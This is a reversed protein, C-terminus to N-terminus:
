QITLDLNFSLDFLLSNAVIDGTSITNNGFGYLKITANPVYIKGGFTNVSSAASAMFVANNDNGNQWLLVGHYPDSTASIPALQINNAFNLNGLGMSGGSVYFFVGGSPPNPCASSPTGGGCLASNSGSVNLGDTFTYHGTGFNVIDSNGVCLSSQCGANTGFQYNGPQFNVTKSNPINLGGAYYGPTCTMTSGGSCSGTPTTLAAVPNQSAWTALPDTVKISTSVPNPNVSVTGTVSDHTGSTPCTQGTSGNNLCNYVEVGNNVPTACSTSTGATVTNSSTFPDSSVAPNSGNSNYGSGLLISGVACVSQGSSLTTFSIDPGSGLLTLVGNSQVIPPVPIGSVPTGTLAYQYPACASGITSCGQTVNLTVTSVMYTFTWDSSPSCTVGTPIGTPTPLICNVVPTPPNTTSVNDSLIVHSQPTSSGNPCYFRVLETPGGSSRTLTYYSVVTSVGQLQLGLLFIPTGSLGVASCQQPASSPTAATTVSAASEIDRVYYASATTAASADTVKGEIGQQNKLTTILVMAIAGTVLPLIVLVILLEILTFGDEGAGPPRSRGRAPHGYDGRRSRGTRGM